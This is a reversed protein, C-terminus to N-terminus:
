PLPPKERLLQDFRGKYVPKAAAKAVNFISDIFPGKNCYLATVSVEGVKRLTVSVSNVGSSIERLTPVLANYIEQANFSGKPIIAVDTPNSGFALGGSGDKRIELIWGTGMSVTIESVEEFTPIPPHAPQDACASMNGIMFCCYLLRQFSM